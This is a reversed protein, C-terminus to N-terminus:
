RKRFLRNFEMDIDLKDHVDKFQTILTEQQCSYCTQMADTCLHNVYSKGCKKCIHEYDRGGLIPENNMIKRQLEKNEGRYDVVYFIYDLIKNWLKRM